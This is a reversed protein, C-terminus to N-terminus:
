NIHAQVYEFGYLWDMEYINSAALFINPVLRCLDPDVLANGFHDPYISDNNDLQDEM